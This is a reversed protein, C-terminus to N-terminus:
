YAHWCKSGVSYIDAMRFHANRRLPFSAFHALGQVANTTWSYTHVYMAKAGEESDWFLAGMNMGIEAALSSHLDLDDKQTMAEGCHVGEKLM